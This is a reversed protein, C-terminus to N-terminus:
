AARCAWSRGGTRRTLWCFCRARCSRRATPSSRAGTNKIATPTTDDPDVSMGGTCVVFDAGQDLYAQIAATIKQPDDNVITQGLVEVDFEALKERIVPGFQDQIRGFYVENGTTM